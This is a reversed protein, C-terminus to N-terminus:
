RGEFVNGAVNEERETFYCLDEVSLFPVQGRDMINVGAIDQMYAVIHPLVYVLLQVFYSQQQSSMHSIEKAVHLVSYKQAKKSIKTETSKILKEEDTEELRTEEGSSLKKAEKPGCAMKPQDVPTVDRSGVKRENKADLTLPNSTNTADMKTKLTAIHEAGYRRLPM